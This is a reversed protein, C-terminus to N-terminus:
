QFLCFNISSRYMGRKMVIVIIFHILPLLTWCCCFSSLVKVKYKPNIRIQELWRIDHPRPRIWRCLCNNIQSEDELTHQRYLHIKPELNLWLSPLNSRLWVVHKNLLSSIKQPNECWGALLPHFLSQVSSGAWLILCSCFCCFYSNVKIKPTPKNSFLDWVRTAPRWVEEVLSLIWVRTQKLSSTILLRYDSVPFRHTTQWDPWGTWNRDPWKGCNM